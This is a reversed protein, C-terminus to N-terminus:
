SGGLAITWRDDGIPASRDPYLERKRFSGIPITRKDTGVPGKKAVTGQDIAIVADLKFRFGPQVSPFPSAGRPPLVGRAISRNIGTATMGKYL